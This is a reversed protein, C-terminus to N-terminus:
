RANSEIVPPCSILWVIDASELNSKSGATAILEDIRRAASTGYVRTPVSLCRTDFHKPQIDCILLFERNRASTAALHEPSQKIGGEIKLSPTASSNM